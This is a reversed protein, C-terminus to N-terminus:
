ECYGHPLLSTHRCRIWPGVHAYRREDAGLYCVACQGWALRRRRDGCQHLFMADGSLRRRFRQMDQDSFPQYAPNRSQAVVDGVLASRVVRAVAVGSMARSSTDQTM